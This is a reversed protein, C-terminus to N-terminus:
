CITKWETATHKYETFRELLRRHFGAATKIGDVIADTSHVAKSAARTM